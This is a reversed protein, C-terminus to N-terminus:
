EEQRLEGGAQKEYDASANTLTELARAVDGFGKAETVGQGKYNSFWTELIQAIGPFDRNLEQISRVGGLPTGERVAVLKVDLDGRDHMELLGIVRVPVVSGRPISEGLVLIDLPDGDGGREKSLVTRPVMGYNTPYGLYAVRRPKGDKIDWHLLGDESKVEWKDVYGAPVEIVANAVGPAAIARHGSLFNEKARLTQAGVRELGAAIPTASEDAWAPVTSMLLLLGFVIAVRM